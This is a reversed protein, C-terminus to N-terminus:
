RKFGGAKPISHMSSDYQGGLNNVVEAALAKWDKNAAQPRQEPPRQGSVPAASPKSQKHLGFLESFTAPKRSALDIIDEASLDLSRQQAEAVLKDMYAAGYKSTAAEHAKQLNAERQAKATQQQQEAQIAKLVEQKLKEPDVSVSPQNTNGGQQSEQRSNKLEALADDLKKAKALEAEMAALRDELEKERQRKEEIFKDAHEMKKIADEATFSRGAYEFLTSVQQQQSSAEQNDTSQGQLLDSM